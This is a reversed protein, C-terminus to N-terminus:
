QNSNKIIILDRRINPFFSIKKNIICETAM